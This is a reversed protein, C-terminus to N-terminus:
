CRPIDGNHQLPETAGRYMWARQTETPESHGRAGSDSLHKWRVQLWKPGVATEGTVDPPTFGTEAICDAWVTSWNAATGVRVAQALNTTRAYLGLDGTDVVVFPWPGIGNPSTSAGPQGRLRARLETDDSAMAKVEDLNEKAQEVTCTSNDGVEACNQNASNGTGAQEISQGPRPPIPDPGCSGIGFIIGVATGVATLGLVFRNVLLSKITADFSRREHEIHDHNSSPPESSPSESM